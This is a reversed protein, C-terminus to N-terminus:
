NDKELMAKVITLYNKYHFNQGKLCEEKLRNVVDRRISLVKKLSETLTAISTIDLFYGNTGDKLYDDINSSKNTLVPIGCSISEVFKTPFGAKTVLNEERIFISFDAEKVKKIAESNSVRGHFRINSSLSSPITNEKWISNYESSSIGIIDFFFNLNYEEKLIVLSSIIKGLHDKMKGDPSGAYILKYAESEINDIVLKWKPNELDVLPPLLIVNNNKPSYFEFLFRSIAIIGDLKPHVYRMRFYSDFGKILKFFLKGEPVYWETCDSILKIKNQRCYKNLRNLAIAPYNYAFVAKIDHIEILKIIDKISIIYKLWDKKNEPYKLKYDEGFNEKRHTDFINNSQKRDKTIGLYVIDYGLDNLIRGNALVRHAAANKDPLYFGGIYLAKLKGM